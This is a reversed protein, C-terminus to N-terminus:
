DRAPFQHVSAPIKEDKDRAWELLVKMAAYGITHSLSQVEEEIDPWAVSVAQLKGKNVDFGLREVFEAKKADSMLEKPDKIEKLGDIWWRGLSVGLAIALVRTDTADEACTDPIQSKIKVAECLLAKVLSEENADEKASGNADEKASSEKDQLKSLLKQSVEDTM